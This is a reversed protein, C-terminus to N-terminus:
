LYNGGPVLCHTIDLKERQDKFDPSNLYILQLRRETPTLDTPPAKCLGEFTWHIPAERSLGRLALDFNVSTIFAESHPTSDPTM